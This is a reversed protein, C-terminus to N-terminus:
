VAASTKTKVVIEVGAEFDEFGADGRFLCPIVETTRPNTGDGM